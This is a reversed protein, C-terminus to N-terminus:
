LFRLLAKILGQQTELYEKSTTEAVNARQAYSALEKKLESVERTYELLQVAAEACLADRENDGTQTNLEDILVPVREGKVVM